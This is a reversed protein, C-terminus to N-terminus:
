TYAAYRSGYVKQESPALGRGDEDPTMAVGASEVHAVQEEDEEDLDVAAGELDDLMEALPEDEDEASFYADSADDSDVETEVAQEQEEEHALLEDDARQDDVAAVVAGARFHARLASAALDGDWVDHLRRHTLLRREVAVAIADSGTVRPDVFRVSSLLCSAVYRILFGGRRQM